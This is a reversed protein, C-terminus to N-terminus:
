RLVVYAAAVLLDWIPIGSLFIDPKYCKTHGTSAPGAHPEITADDGSSNTVTKTLDSPETTRM